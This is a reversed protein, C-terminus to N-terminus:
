AAALSHFRAAFTDVRRMLTTRPVGLSAAIEAQGRDEYHMARLTAAVLPPAARLITKADLSAELAEFSDVAHLSLEGELEPSIPVVRLTTGQAKERSRPRRRGVTPLSAWYSAGCKRAIATLYTRASARAPDFAGSGAKLVALAVEQSVVEVFDRRQALPVDTAKAVGRVIRRITPMLEEWAAGDSEQARSLVPNLRAPDLADYKM